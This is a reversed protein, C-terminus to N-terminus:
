PTGLLTEVAIQRAAKGQGAADLTALASRFDAPEVSPGADLIRLALLLAEGTRGQAAVAALPDGEEPGEDFAALASAALRERDTQPAGPVDDPATGRSLALAVKLLPDADPPLWAGAAIGKGDLLLLEAVRADPRPTEKLLAAGYMRALAPRLGQPALARDAKALAEQWSEGEDLAADLDQIAGSRGWVGGSAAPPRARYAAQLIRPPAASRRVLREAAEIRDRVTATDFLDWHLFALPLADAPRPQGIAERVVFDLPTLPEPLPLDEDTAFLEPDLFWSMHAARVEDIAGLRQGVTLAFAADRWAGRRVTCFVQAQVSPAFEPFAAIRRCAAETDGALLSADFMRRFVQPDPDGILDMLARAEDLAGLMLLMDIRTRLLNSRVSGGAPPATQALLLRIYLARAEPVGTGKVQRMLSRVRLGSSPGWLTRSLGTNQAPLLGVGDSSLPPLSEQTVSGGSQGAPVPPTRRGPDALVDSLWGIASLPTTTEASSPLPALLLALAAAASLGWTM